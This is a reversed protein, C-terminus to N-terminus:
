MTRLDIFVDANNTVVVFYDIEWNLYDSLHYLQMLSLPISTIIVLDIM